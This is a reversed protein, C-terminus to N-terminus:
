PKDGGQKGLEATKASMRDMLVNAALIMGNRQATMDCGNGDLRGHVIHKNIAAWAAEREAAVAEAILRRVTAATYGKVKIYGGDSVLVSSTLDHKPLRKRHQIM